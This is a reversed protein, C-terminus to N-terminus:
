PKPLSIDLLILDPQLTGAKQIAEHGDAAEGVIQWRPDKRLAARVYRRWPEYDDVVMVRYSNMQTLRGSRVRPASFPEHDNSGVAPFQSYPWIPTCLALGRGIRKLRVAIGLCTSTSHSDVIGGRSIEHTDMGGGDDHEEGQGSGRAGLGRRDRRHPR